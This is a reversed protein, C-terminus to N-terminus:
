QFNFERNLYVISQKEKKNVEVINKIQINGRIM